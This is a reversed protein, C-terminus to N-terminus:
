ITLDFYIPCHDSAGDGGTIRDDFRPGTYYDIDSGLGRREIHPLNQKQIKALSPSLLLYDLQEASKGKKYYHTWREKKPLRDVINVLDRQLLPELSKAAAGDNLDGAVIFHGKDLKPGFREALIEAVRTAQRHRQEDGGGIKSKFHNVLVTLRQGGPVHIDVELCDRSFVRTSTSGVREFRHTHVAGIPYKSLLGIDIQRPDNGEICIFYPYASELWTRNFIELAQMNEVEQVALVDPDNELIAQATLRRASKAIPGYEDISIGLMLISGGEVLFKQPDIPKSKFGAKETELLRYRLFLNEINFTGIRITAM